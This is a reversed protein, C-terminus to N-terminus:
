LKPAGAARDSSVGPWAYAGARLVVPPERTADLVTSSPGGPARGGDVLLDISGAFAKEVSAPDDLPPEGSRNASTGTLPGLAGLLDRLPASAPLRVGLTRSGRSAPLATRVPFIVTLAAPWIRFYRAVREDTADIGLDTLQDQSGFLVPLPKGDDRGKAAFIRGVGSESSPDAALGYHTETPIALLGGAALLKRAASLEEPSSLLQDISIRRL